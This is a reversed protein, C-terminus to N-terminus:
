TVNLIRMAGRAVDMCHRVVGIYKASIQSMPFYDQADRGLSQQVDSPVEFRESIACIM